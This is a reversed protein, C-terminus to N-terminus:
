EPAPSPSASPSPRLIDVPMNFKLPLSVRIPPVGMAAFLQRTLLDAYPWLLPMAKDSIFELLTPEDVPQKEDAADFGAVLELNLFVPQDKPTTSLQLAVELNPFQTSIRVGVNLQVQVPDPVAADRRAQINLFSVDRLTYPLSGQGPEEPM